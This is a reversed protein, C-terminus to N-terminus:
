SEKNDTQRETSHKDRSRQMGKETSKNFIAFHGHKTKVRMSKYYIKCFHAVENKERKLHM